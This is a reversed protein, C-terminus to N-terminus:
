PRRHGAGRPRDARRAPGRGGLAREGPWRGRRRPAGLPTRGGAGPRLGLGYDARAVGAEAGALGFGVLAPPPQEVALEVTRRAAPQGFQGPIDYIWALDVGLERAARRGEDLGEVVGEAPLGRLEHMYPTVTIEAYRVNHTALDAAANRVLTAVDAPSRVLDNVTSYVEIFHPFDRFEFFRRLQAPDSPVGADPHAEAVEGLTAVSASGVLHLHLEVKPARAIFADVAADM